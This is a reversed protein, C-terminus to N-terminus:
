ARARWITRGHNKDGDLFFKRQRQAGLARLRRTHVRFQPSFAQDIGGSYRLNETLPYDGLIYKNAAPVVGETGPNPYSPNTINLERQRVGDVRLTQEYTGRYLFNHFIGASARLTTERRADAGVHPRVAAGM